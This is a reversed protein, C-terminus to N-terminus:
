HGRKKSESFTHQGVNLREAGIGPRLKANFGGAIIAAKKSCKNYSEICRYLKEIHMDVSGTHPFYVTPLVIHRQQHKLGTTIMRESVHETRLTM